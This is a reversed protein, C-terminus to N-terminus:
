IQGKIRLIVLHRTFGEGDLSSTQRTFEYGGSVNVNRNVLVTAGLGARFWHDNRSIGRYDDWRYSGFGNLLVNRRLEHDVQLRFTTGWYSSSGTQTTEELNRVLSATVTTLGTPTWTLSAGGSPGTVTSLTPDRYDRWLWGAFLEGVLKGTLEITIGGDVRGGISDRRLGDADFRDNYRIYDGTLQGFVGIRPSARYTLRFVGEWERRDRDDNDILGVGAIPVDKYDLFRMRNSLRATFRGFTHQGGLTLEAVWFKTPYKGGVDDPSGREEHRRAFEGGAFIYTNGSIDYRGNIIGLADQYDEKRHSKYFGIEAAVGFNLQHRRWNSRIAIEPNLIVIFDQKRDTQTAFINSDYVGNLSFAPYIFFSGRRIGVADYQPRRRNTVTENRIPEPRVFPSSGAAPPQQALGQTPTWITAIAVILGAASGRLCTQIGTGPM